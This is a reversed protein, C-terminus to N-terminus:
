LSGEKRDQINKVLTVVGTKIGAKLGAINAGATTSGLGGKIYGYAGRIGKDLSAVTNSIQRVEETIAIADGTIKRVNELTKKLEDLTENINGETRKVFDEVAAGARKMGTLYSISFAAFVIFAIVGIGLIIEIMTM